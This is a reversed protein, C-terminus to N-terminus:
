GRKNRRSYLIFVLTLGWGVLGGIVALAVIHEIIWALYEM